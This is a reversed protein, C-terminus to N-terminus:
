PAGVHKDNRSVSVPVLLERLQCDFDIWLIFHGVGPSAHAEFYLSLLSPGHHLPRLGCLALLIVPGGERVGALGTSGRTLRCKATLSISCTRQKNGGDPSNPPGYAAPTDPVEYRRVASTTTGSLANSQAEKRSSTVGPAQQYWQQQSREPLAQPFDYHHTEKKTKSIRFKGLQDQKRNKPNQEQRRM